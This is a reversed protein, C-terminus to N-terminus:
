RTVFKRRTSLGDIFELFTGALRQISRDEDVYVVSPEKKAGGRYDLMVADHGGSPMDCIVIGIDPYDWEAILDASGLGNDSDIGWDGGIGRIAAIEIHDPAWSTPTFTRFCRRRPVGGNKENLLRIYSPPLRHGLKAEANRLAARSVVPGLYFDSRLFFSM